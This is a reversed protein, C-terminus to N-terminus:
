SHKKHSKHKKKKKKGGGSGSKPPPDGVLAQILVAANPSGLGTCADWGPSASYVGLDGDIDNTGDVIDRFAGATSSLQYLLPNLFGAPEAGQKALQQNLRAILGAWLPAVASTGGIVETKGGLVVQYGTEPDAVGAVDPVGRGAKKNPGKPVSTNQQYAPLPFVTSVGGGGAGATRGENWVTESSISTKQGILKTGGCGLSFPASSPFDAHPKGDSRQLDSSGSDGSAACVTVGLAAADSLASNLGDRFQETIEDEPGGWSISIISPKRVTDHIAANVADIFGQDTNPAFYVAISAGPAAAGAVDHRLRHGSADSASAINASASAQRLTASVDRGSSPPSSAENAANARANHLM